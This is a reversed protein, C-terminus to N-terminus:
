ENELKFEIKVKNTDSPVSTVWPFSFKVSVDQVGEISQLSSQVEGFRKGKVENKVNDENIEPGIQGKATLTASLTNNDNRFNGLQASSVGDDYIKQNDGVIQQDLVQKLYEKLDTNPVAYMVYTTPISLTAKGNSAEQNLAPSASVVGRQVAFSDGIAKDNSSFKDLLAKKQAATSRGILEGQAREIDAQSVVKVVKTTGGSTQGQLSANVNSPQGRVAGSAGNYDTGSELATVGTTAGSRSNEFTMTVATNTTFVQGNATSLRTGAPITSGLADIANTTFRVTGTAKEGVDRQGTADFDITENKQEQQQSVRLTSQALNTTGTTTLTVSTSVPAPATRAAIVITAAPAIVFMWILLAVLLIIGAIIFILKKRFTDFNPIKSKGKAAKKNKAARAVGAMAVPAYTADNEIDITEIAQSRLQDRTGDKVPIRAAHDGVPLSNGDIIDDGDDVALAPVTALEPKSQLNRAVPIAANAALAVLAPNSTILVLKKKETTAMRDLLRLNVASQLAGPRKPPVVAVIKEKASKIKGIIATVDDEVDIYIVDKNM